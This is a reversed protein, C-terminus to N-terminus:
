NHRDPQQLTVYVNYSFQFHCNSYHLCFMLWACFLRIRKTYTQKNEIYNGMGYVKHWNSHQLKVAIKEVCHWSTNFMSYIKLIYTCYYLAIYLLACSIISLRYLFTHHKKFLAQLILTQFFGVYILNNFNAGRYTPFCTFTQQTSFSCGEVIQTM